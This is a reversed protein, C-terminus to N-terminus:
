NVPESRKCVKRTLKSLVHIDKELSMKQSTIIEYQRSGPNATGLFTTCMKLLEKAETDVEEIYDLQKRVLCKGKKAYKYDTGGLGTPNTILADMLPGRHSHAQYHTLMTIIIDWTVNVDDDSPVEETVNRKTPTENMSAYACTTFFTVLLM